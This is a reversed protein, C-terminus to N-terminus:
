SREMRGVRAGPRITPPADNLIDRAFGAAAQYKAMFDSRESAPIVEDICEFEGNCRENVMNLLGFPGAERNRLIVESIPRCLMNNYAQLAAPTVGHELFKAGMIRGDVIAQSAGNSGTPYMPHAADGLLAVPGEVWHSIPDRDIMPNEFVEEADRILAPVDLWDFTWNEFRHIFNEIEVRRFWGVNDHMLPDDYTVEAIWNILALGTNPDAESIPYIVMRQRHNGLGVFSSKTRIPRAMSTGRWMIAGGWHIPPQRPFMAARIASHIGDAGVLLTGNEYDPGDPTDLQLSVTGNKHIDYGKARCGLRIADDGALDRFRRYLAMHFEGRHMAYQPWSYGALIGRPESYIEQGKLGVLAWEKAPVGFENMDAATFGLDFMERVANPQLNIGVGLPRPNRVSECVICEIGIQNLTLALALGGIGGGAIVVKDKLM